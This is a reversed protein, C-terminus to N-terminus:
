GNISLANRGSLLINRYNDPLEAKINPLAIDPCFIRRKMLVFYFAYM